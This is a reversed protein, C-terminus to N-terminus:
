RGALRQVTALLAQQDFDQKTLYADAGAAIGQRRDKDSGMSTVVVVPLSAHAPDARIARTLGFGDLQPMEVDTIVIAVDPQGDLVRLAERGDRATVVLYGAMELISRQLERVTFSDEVVLVKAPAHALPRPATAPAQGHQVHTLLVPEILLAIRGDSLIAAGLYGDVAALLRGLPKVVVEEQGVLADCAVVTRRGGAAVVLAPSPEARPPAQAGVLAAFDAVPLSRGRLNLAPRGELSLTGTVTVVEEVVALPVGYVQGGREFLLVELLALALPLLLAVEMGHGPESRVELSGGCAQAYDRVADLGVGRGSIDTVATATSFGPRALVETLSGERRAEEMVAPSVGRGDDAVVIEVLGGRPVARLEIRGRPPKGAREREAAKEIGHGIANRLLHTLPETLSELIVRDLETDAGTIVLEVDKGEAQGLDRVARPLPGAIRALPLTRMGVATDKLEDLMRDGSGLVDATEPHLRAEDGLVHDLRGRYQVLEGVVDLLHDVKDVSVRLTRSTAAPQHAAEPQRRGAAVVVAHGAPSGVAPEPVAVGPAAAPPAAVEPLPPGTTAGATGTLSGRSVVLDDIIGQVPNNGGTVLGRLATTARLVSSALEPPFAGTARVTDFVDEVTHALRRIDDFGLMGAGGKISHAHRFLADITGTGAAGSEVAMLAADMEDLRGQSEDRFVQHLQDDLDTV